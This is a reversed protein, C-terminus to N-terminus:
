SNQDKLVKQLDVWAAKKMKPNINLYDPHFIPVLTVTVGSAEYPLFQGHVTSLKEKRGLILNTLRAGFCLVFKPESSVLLKDIYSKIELDTAEKSKKPLYCAEYGSPSLKMAGIMRTFLITSESGLHEGECGPKEVGEFDALFLM